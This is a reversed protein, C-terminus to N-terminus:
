FTWHNILSLRAFGQTRKSLSSSGSLKISEFDGLSPRGVLLTTPIVGIKRAAQDLSAGKVREIEVTRLHQIIEEPTHRKKPM